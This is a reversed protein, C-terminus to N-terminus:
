VELILDSGAVQRGVEEDEFTVLAYSDCNKMIGHAQGLQVMQKAQELTWKYSKSIPNYSRHYRGILLHFEAEDKLTRFMVPQGGDYIRIPGYVLLEIQKEAAYFLTKGQRLRYVTDLYDAEVSDYDIRYVTFQNNDINETYHEHFKDTLKVIDGEIVPTEPLDEIFNDNLDIFHWGDPLNEVREKFLDEDIELELIEFIETKNAIDVYLKTKDFYKGPRCGPNGLRGIYAKPFGAVKGIQQDIKVDDGLLIAKSLLHQKMESDKSIIDMVEKFNAM